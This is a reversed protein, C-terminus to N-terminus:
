SFGIQEANKNRVRSLEKRKSQYIKSSINFEILHVAIPGSSNCEGLLSSERGRRSLIVSQEVTNWEVSLMTLGLRYRRLYQIILNFFTELM